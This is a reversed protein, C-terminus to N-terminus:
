QWLYIVILFSVPVEDVLNHVFPRTELETLPCSDKKRVSSATFKMWSAEQQQLSDGMRQHQLRPRPCRSTSMHPWVGYAVISRRLWGGDGGNARLFDTTYNGVQATM